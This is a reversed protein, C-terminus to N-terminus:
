DFFDYFTCFHLLFISCFKNPCTKFFHVISSRIYQDLIKHNPGPTLQYYKLTEVFFIIVNATISKCHTVGDILIKGFIHTINCSPQQSNMQAASPRQYLLEYM